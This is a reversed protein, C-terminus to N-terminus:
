FLKKCVLDGIFGFNSFFEQWWHSSKVTKHTPDWSLIKEKELPTEAVQVIFLINQKVKASRLIKPIVRELAAIDLHPLVEKPFIFDYYKEPLKMDLLSGQKLCRRIAKPSNNIAYNSIDIGEINSYNKKFFEFLVYGKACGLELIKADKELSYRNCAKQVVGEYRGDYRYGGYGLGSPGDFYNKGYSLFDSPPQHTSKIVREREVTSRSLTQEFINYDSFKFASSTLM